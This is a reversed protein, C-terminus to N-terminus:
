SPRKSYVSFIEGAISEKKWNSPAVWGEPYITEIKKNDVILIDLGFDENMKNLKELNLYPYKLTYNEELKDQFEKSTTHIFVTDHITELMVRFVGVAHFPFTLITKRNNISKLFSIIQDEEKRLVETNLIKFNIKNFVFVEFLWFLGGYGILGWIVWMMSMELSLHTVWILIFIIIHNLYREAEGIFLLIRINVLFFIVSGAMVTKLIYSEVPIDSILFLVLGVLIVPMKLIVVGFSNIKLLHRILIGLRKFGKKGAIKVRIMQLSNRNSIAMNGKLNKKFYWLLHNGQEKISKLFAGRSVIVSFLFAFLLFIIPELSALFLSISASLLVLAQIGFKSSLLTYAGLAILVIIKIYEPFSFPLLMVLFYINVAFESTIRPTLSKIRPGTSIGSFLIPTFNYLMGVITAFKWDHTISILFYVLGAFLSDLISNIWKKNKLLFNFSLKGVLWHWLFPHSFGESKIVKTKITGFPGLSQRKLEFAFYLHGYTDFDIDSNLVMSLRIILGTIVVGLLSMVEIM